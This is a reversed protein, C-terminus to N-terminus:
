LGLQCSLKYCGGHWHKKSVTRTQGQKNLLPVENLVQPHPKYVPKSLNITDCINTIKTGFTQQVPWWDINCLFNFRLNYNFGFGLM